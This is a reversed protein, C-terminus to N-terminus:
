MTFSDGTDVVSADADEKAPASQVVFESMWEGQPADPNTGLYPLSVLVMDWSVPIAIKWTRTNENWNRDTWKMTLTHKQGTVIFQDRGRRTLDIPEQDDVSVTVLDYAKIGLDELSKNDVLITHRRGLFYMWVALLVVLIIAAARIGMRKTRINM